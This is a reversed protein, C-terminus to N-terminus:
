DTIETQSPKPHGNPSPSPRWIKYGIVGIEILLLFVGLWVLVRMLKVMGRQEEKTRQVYTVM